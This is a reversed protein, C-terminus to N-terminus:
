LLIFECFDNQQSFKAWKSLRPRRFPTFGEFRVARALEGAFQNLIPARIGEDARKAACILFVRPHPCGRELSRTEQIPGHTWPFDTVFATARRHLNAWAILFEPIPKPM